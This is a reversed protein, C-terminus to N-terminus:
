RIIKFIDNFTLILMLFMAIALGVFHVMGEREPDIPKGRVAEIFLFFLRGGDLAPLPLLNFVGLNITIFVAIDMLMLLNEKIQKSSDISGGIASVIGVPGSVDKMGYKGSVLDILSSWIVQGFTITKRLSYNLVTGLSKEQYGTYFDLISEAKQLETNVDERDEFFRAYVYDDVDSDYYYANELGIIDNLKTHEETSEDYSYYPSFKNADTKDINRVYLYSYIRVDDLIIKKGDRKIELNFIDDKTTSIKYRVDMETFVKMGNIKTIEDDIQLGGKVSSANRDFKKIVTTPIKDNNISTSIIILVFGLILNMIAGAAIVAMRNIVPKNNFARKNDSNKDEGEMECFGGFPLLRLSYETEGKQFKFIAPGMGIAFKNVKIDSLKAVIYHGFEHVAIIVGFVLIAILIKIM